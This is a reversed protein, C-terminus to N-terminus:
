KVLKKLEGSVGSKPFKKLYDKVSKKAEKKRNERLLIKIKLVVIEEVRKRDAGYKATYEDAVPIFEEYSLSDFQMQFKMDDLTRQLAPQIPIVLKEKKEEVAEWDNRKASALLGTLQLQYRESSIKKTKLAEDQYFQGLSFDGRKNYYESIGGFFHLGLWEQTPKIGRELLVRVAQESLGAYESWSLNIKIRDIDYDNVTGSSLLGTMFEPKYKLIDALFYEKIWGSSTQQLFDDAMELTYKSSTNQKRFDSFAAFRKSIAQLNPSVGGIVREGYVYNLLFLGTEGFQILKSRIRTDSILKSKETSDLYSEAIKLCYSVSEIRELGTVSRVVIDATLESRKGILDLEVPILWQEGSTGFKTRYDKIRGSLYAYSQIQYEAMIQMLEIQESFYQPYFRSMVRINPLALDPRNYIMKLRAASYLAKTRFTDNQAYRIKKDLLELGLQEEGTEFLVEAELLDVSDYWHPYKDRESKIRALLTDFRGLMKLNILSYIFADGSLTHNPFRSQFEDFFVTSQDYREAYHFALGSNFYLESWSNKNLRKNFLIAKQFSEGSLSYNHSQYSLQGLQAWLSDLPMFLLPQKELYILDKKFTDWKNLKSAAWIRHNLNYVSLLPQGSLAQFDSEIIKDLSGNYKWVEIQLAKKFPLLLSNQSIKGIQEEAKIRQGDNMLAYGLRFRIWDIQVSESFENELKGYYIVADKWKKLQAYSEALLLYSREIFESNDLLPLILEIDTICRDFDRLKFYSEAIVLSIYNAYASFPYETLFDRCVVESAKWRELRALTYCRLVWAHEAEPLKSPTETIAELYALAETLRDYDLAARALWYQVRIKWDGGVAANLETLLTEAEFFRNQQLYIKALQWVKNIRQPHVPYDRVFQKLDAESEYWRGFAFKEDPPYPLNQSSVYGFSSFLLLVTLLLKM